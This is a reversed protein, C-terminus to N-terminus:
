SAARRMTTKPEIGRITDVIATADASAGRWAVYQDPRILALPAAYLEALQSRRLDVLRLPVGAQDAASQIDRAFPAGEDALLLLTYGLGFHDYLSTGDALWAHPALCGPHASPQYNAHHEAPAASGDGVIIPSNQYRSGLVVGLTKFERTKAAGIDAAIEARAREGTPTDADLDEKLLHDSLTKYNEIAEAVTRLHVARREQEYSALLAEGGWDALVAGLKWGLDVGDAIGLNMGYGGYPPHLHCADGALFVRRDRYRDAILRHAAWIDREVIDIDVQRGIAARARAIAEDDSIEKVGPRLLIGFAWVDTGDLPSLVGPSEPNVIWYMIARREPSTKALEPIRLILNYNHLFAHDGEMKAGIVARVRSRAGDAGVLYEARISQSTNTAINRVTASVGTPGQTFDKLVTGSLMRVSPLRAIREHLIREVTYQPVWQAAEPFRPDRRKAGEFANEIVALTRGFLATAFVIDTPYDYPLPAAARLADAIGWRRMHQMSRVNTTKARPQAGTRLRQEVLTVAIGRLGLEIALSLGVPGAGVVLVQTEIAESSQPM